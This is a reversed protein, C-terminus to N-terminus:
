KRLADRINAPMPVADTREYESSDFRPPIPTPDTVKIGKAQDITKQAIMLTGTTIPVGNGAILVILSKLHEVTVTKLANQIQGAIMSGKPRIDGKLNDFYLKTLEYVPSNTENPKTKTNHGGAPSGRDADRVVGQGGAPSTDKKKGTRAASPNISNWVLARDFDLVFRYRITKGPASEVREIWGSEEIEKMAEAVTSRAMRTKKSLNELSMWFENDNADNVIDAIAILVLFSPGRHPAYRWAHGLAESSL